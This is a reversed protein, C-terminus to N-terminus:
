EPRFPPGAKPLGKTSEWSRCIEIAVLRESAFHQRHLLSARSPIQANFQPSQEANGHSPVSDDARSETLVIFESERM